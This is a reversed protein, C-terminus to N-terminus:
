FFHKRKPPLVYTKYQVAFLDCVAFETFDDARQLHVIGYETYDIGYLYPESQTLSVFLEYVMNINCCGYEKGSKGYKDLIEEVTSIRM